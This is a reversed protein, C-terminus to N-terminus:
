NVLRAAVTSTALFLQELAATKRKALQESLLIKLLSQKSGNLQEWYIAELLTPM